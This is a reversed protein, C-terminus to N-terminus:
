DSVVTRDQDSREPEHSTSHEEVIDAPLDVPTSTTTAMQPSPAKKRPSPACPRCRPVTGVAGHLSTVRADPEADLGCARRIRALVGESARFPGLQFTLLTLVTWFTSFLIQLFPDNAIQRFLGVSLYDLQRDTKGVSFHSIEIQPAFTTVRVKFAGEVVMAFGRLQGAARADHDEDSDNAEDDQGVHARASPTAPRIVAGPPITIENEFASYLHGVESFGPMRFDNAGEEDPDPRAGCASMTSGFLGPYHCRFPFSRGYLQMEGSLTGLRVAEGLNAVGREGGFTGISGEGLILTRWGTPFEAGGGLCLPDSQWEAYDSLGIERAADSTGDKSLPVHGIDTGQESVAEAVVTLGMSNIDFSLRVGIEPEFVGAACDGPAQEGHHDMLRMGRLDLDSMRPDAVIYSFSETRAGIVAYTRPTLFFAVLAVLVLAILFAVPIAAVLDGWRASQTTEQREETM